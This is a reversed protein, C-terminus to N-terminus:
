VMYRVRSRKFERGSFLSVYENLGTQKCIQSVVDQCAERSQSHIVAYLNYDWLHDTKREFCHSVENFSAIKRGTIEVLDRPVKWCVVANASFGVGIHNISASMRRLVGREQLSQCVKLFEDTNLGATAAMPDFPREVLPLGDQVQEIVARDVTSLRVEGPLSSKKSSPAHWGDGAMDFYAGIKYLKLPPLNIVHEARITKNLMSIEDPVATQAPLALTFWLNFRHEREYCHSVGPHSSIISAAREIEGTTVMMAVLTAQYGLRRADLVPGLEHIVGQTKLRQMHQLIADGSIGITTGLVAFPEEHLPFARQVLNVLKREINDLYM